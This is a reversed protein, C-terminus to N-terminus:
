NTFNIRSFMQSTQELFYGPCDEIIKKIKNKYDIEQFLIQAVNGETIVFDKYTFDSSLINYNYLKLVNGDRICFYISSHDQKSSLSILENIAFSLGEKLNWVSVNVLGLTQKIKDVVNEDIASKSLLHSFTQLSNIFLSLTEKNHIKPDSYFLNGVHDTDM